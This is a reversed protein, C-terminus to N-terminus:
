QFANLIFQYFHPQQDVKEWSSIRYYVGGIVWASDADIVIASQFRCVWEFSKNQVIDGQELNKNASRQRFRGRCTCVDTYHDDQGGSLNNVPTNKRFTGTQRMEGIDIQLSM